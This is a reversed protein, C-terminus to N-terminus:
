ILDKDVDRVSAYRGHDKCPSITRSVLTQEKCHLRNEALASKTTAGQEIENVNGLISASWASHM